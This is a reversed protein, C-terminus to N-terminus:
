SEAYDGSSHRSGRNTFYYKVYMGRQILSQPFVGLLGVTQALHTQPRSMSSQGPNWGPDFLKASHAFEYM